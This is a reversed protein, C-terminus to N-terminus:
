PALFVSLMGAFTTLAEPTFSLSVGAFAVGKTIIKGVGITAQDPVRATDIIGVTTSIIPTMTPDPVLVQRETFLGSITPVDVCVVVVPVVPDAVSFVVLGGSPLGIPRYSFLSRYFGLGVIGFLGM